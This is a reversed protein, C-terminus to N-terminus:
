LTPKTTMRYFTYHSYQYFGLSKYFYDDSIVYTKKAGLSYCRKLSELLVVRGLGKKRYEPITCVPEIYAYDTKQDYWSGCYAVYEGDQNEAVTHLYSNLHPASLM